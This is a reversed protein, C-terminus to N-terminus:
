EVRVCLCLGSDACRLSDRRPAASSARFTALDQEHQEKRRRETDAKRGELDHIFAIEEDDLAKPPAAGVLLV